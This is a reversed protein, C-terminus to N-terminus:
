RIPGVPDPYARTRACERGADARMERMAARTHPMRNGTGFAHPACCFRNSATVPGIRLPEFLVDYRPNGSL